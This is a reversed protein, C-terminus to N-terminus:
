RKKAKLAADLLDLIARVLSVREAAAYAVLRRRLGWTIGRVAIVPSDADAPQGTDEVRKGM